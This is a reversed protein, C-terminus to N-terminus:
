LKDIYSRDVLNIPKHMNQNITHTYTNEERSQVVIHAQWRAINSGKRKTRLKKQCIILEEHCTRWFYMMLSRTQGPTIVKRTMKGKPEKKRRM